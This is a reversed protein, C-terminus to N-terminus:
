YPQRLVQNYGLSGGGNAAPSDAYVGFSDSNPAMAYINAHVRHRHVARKAVHEVPYRFPEVNGTGYGEFFVQAFAPSAFSAVTAAAVFAITLKRIM